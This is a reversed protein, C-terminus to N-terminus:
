VFGCSSCVLVGTLAVDYQTPAPDARYCSIGSDPSPQLSVDNPSPVSLAPIYQITFVDAPVCSSLTLLTSPSEM